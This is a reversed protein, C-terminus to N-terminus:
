AGGTRAAAAPRPAIVPPVRRLEDLPIHCFIVHGPAVARAPPSETECVSGLKRPCRSAFRCGPGPDVPSPVPGELRIPRQVAGPDPLPIAALLAETYPHYPPAFLADVPGVECLKGLYMVAVRDALYRVVSLDHSIFLYGAASRAQLEVLVNLIAAQVSVDLASLPEDCVILEPEAAFARAIAVRQREGGSLEHPYRGAYSEPLHVARLLEGVRAARAAGPALGFLALPRALTEGVTRQPNLTADPNQFIVQVRRRLDRPRRRAPGTADTGALEIRGDVPELLGVVARGLTTKGCGSEGVLALTRARGLELSVDDVARVARPALGRVVEALTRRLPYHCRVREVRLLEPAASGPDPGTAGAAGAARFPPLSEHRHCRVTGGGPAAAPPPAQEACLPVREPCRPEFICGPPLAVLSPLRGGIAALPAARKSADLRPVCALLGRTYPHLPRAFVREVPGEEVLEGAYMVAVRDCFRAVVGLNHTIYLIAAGHRARLEAILDLIRAETTVDLGTTPEDMLLLEPDCAFAMAIVIRQQQGGSLEHPYRRYVQAPNPLNVQALLALTRRWAEARGLGVHVRLAEAVQEGVPFAPNLATQPDQYVMALRAGRLRRLAGPSLALLDEGRFRIAGGTVRGNADLYRMVALALSTKGSGSEGVVALTEGAHVRLSVGRVAQVEGGRARYAVSLDRVELVVGAAAGDSM